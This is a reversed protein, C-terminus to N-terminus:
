CYFPVSCCIVVNWISEIFSSDIVDTM